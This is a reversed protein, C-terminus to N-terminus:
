SPAIPLAFSRQKNEDLLFILMGHWNDSILKDQLIRLTDWARFLVLGSIHISLYTTFSFFTHLSIQSANYCFLTKLNESFPRFGVPGTVGLTNFFFNFGGIMLLV